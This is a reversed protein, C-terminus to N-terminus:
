HWLNGICKPNQKHELCHHYNNNIRGQSSCTEFIAFEFIPNMENTREVHVIENDNFLSINTQISM